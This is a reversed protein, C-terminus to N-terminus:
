LCLKEPVKQRHVDSKAFFQASLRKAQAKSQARNGFFIRPLLARIINIRIKKTFPM